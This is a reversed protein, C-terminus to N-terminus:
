NFELALWAFGPIASLLRIATLGFTLWMMARWFRMSQAVPLWLAVMSAMLIAFTFELAAFQISFFFLIAGWAVVTRTRPLLLGLPILLELVWTLNSVVLMLPTTSRIPGTGVTIQDMQRIVEAGAPDILGFLAGFGAKAGIFDGMLQAQFWTGHLVKQVGTLLIVVGTLHRLTRFADRQHRELPSFSVLVAAVVLLLWAHNATVPFTAVLELIAAVLLAVVAMSTRRFALLMLMTAISCLEVGDLWTFSIGPQIRRVSYGAHHLVMLAAFAPLQVDGTPHTQSNENNV